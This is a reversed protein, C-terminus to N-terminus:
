EVFGTYSVSHITMRLGEVVTQEAVSADSGRGHPLPLIPAVCHGVQDGEGAVSAVQVAAFGARDVAVVVNWSSRQEFRVEYAGGGPPFTHILRGVVHIRDAAIGYQLRNLMRTRVTAPTQQRGMHSAIVDVDHHRRFDRRLPNHPVALRVGAQTQVPHAQVLRVPFSPGAM